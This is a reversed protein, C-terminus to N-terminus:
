DINIRLKISKVKWEVPTYELYTTNIKIRHISQKRSGVYWMCCLMCSMNLSIKYKQWRKQTKQTKLFVNWMKFIQNTPKYYNIETWSSKKINLYQGFLFVNICIKLLFNKLFLLTVFRIPRYVWWKVGWKRVSFYRTTLISALLFKKNGIM